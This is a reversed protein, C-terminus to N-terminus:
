EIKTQGDYGNRYGNGGYNSRGSTIAGHGLMNDHSTLGPYDTRGSWDSSETRNDLRGSRDYICSDLKGSLDGRDFSQNM